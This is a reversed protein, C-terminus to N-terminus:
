PQCCFVYPKMILLKGNQCEFLFMVFKFTPTSFASWDSNGHLTMGKMNKKKEKQTTQGNSFDFIANSSAFGSSLYRTVVSKKPCFFTLFM